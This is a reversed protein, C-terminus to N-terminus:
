HEMLIQELSNKLSVKFSDTSEAAVVGAGTSVNSYGWIPDIYGFDSLNGIVGYPIYFDYYEFDYYSKSVSHLTIEKGCDLLEPDWNESKIIYKGSSFHLNLIYSSDTFKKDTFFSFGMASGYISEMEEVNEYFLPEAEYNLIGGYFRLEYDNVQDINTGNEMTSLNSSIYDPFSIRYYDESSEKDSIGVKIELNFTLDMNMELEEDSVDSQTVPIFTYDINTIVPKFPITVEAYAEGYKDSKAFIKIKDGEIPLYDSEVELGNAYIIIQADSVELDMNKDYESYYWTRTVDVKIPHGAKIISNLCLVPKQNLDPSLTEYCSTLGLCVLIFSIYKLIGM